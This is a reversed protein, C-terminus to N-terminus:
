ISLHYCKYPGKQLYIDFCYFLNIHRYRNCRRLHPEIYWLHYKVVMNYPLVIAERHDKEKMKKKQAPFTLDQNIKIAKLLKQLFVALWCLIYGFIKICFFPHLTPRGNLSVVHTECACSTHRLQPRLHSLSTLYIQLCQM